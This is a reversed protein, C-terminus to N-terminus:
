IILRKLAETIEDFYGAENINMNSRAIAGDSFMAAAPPTGNRSIIYHGRQEAVIFGAKELVSVAECVDSVRYDM